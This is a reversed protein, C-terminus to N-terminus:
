AFMYGRCFSINTIFILFQLPRLISGQPVVYKVAKYNLDFGSISFFQFRNTLFSKFKDNAISQSGYHM